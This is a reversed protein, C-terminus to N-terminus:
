VYAVEEEFKDEVQICFPMMETKNTFECRLFPFIIYFTFLADLDREQGMAPLM